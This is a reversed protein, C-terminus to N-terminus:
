DGDGHPRGRVQPLDKPNKIGIHTENPNASVAGRDNLQAGSPNQKHVHANNASKYPARNQNGYPHIRVESGDAHSWTQNKAASNSVKTQQFGDKTLIKETHIVSKGQLQPLSAAADKSIQAATKGGVEAVETAADAVKSVRSVKSAAGIGKTGVVAEATYGFIEGWGEVSSTKEKATEAIGSAVGKVYGGPDAVFSKAEAYQSKAREWTKGSALNYVQKPGSMEWVGAASNALAKGVGTYFRGVDGLYSGTEWLGYPDFKTWPNQRVYTYVNPGDVFGAPDRTLFIGFEIDRYRMGENLLGTPDEDKTNARQRDANSGEEQTRKGYAEYAAQWTITGSENSQSVVDGRSNYANYSRAAGGRITYLVGGIGGGYDSGRITEVTPLSAGSAYEQVSLGGAFSLETQVGGAASEDRGVRRTRHDYTYAFTGKVNDTLTVLRNEFDYAYTQVTSGGVKKETRNGNADYTFTTVTSGSTVSKLQNSNYGDNTTGYVYNWTGPQNGGTVTKQTRNNDADYQYGTTVTPGGTEEAVENTLRYTRDYSNTVTRSNMGAGGYQEVIKLVNGVADYGSPFGGTAQSYDFASIVGGSTRTTETLKRSFADFSSLAEAGNPLVKRTVNGSLDYFYETRYETTAQADAKETCSVLRNLKDYSSALFRGSSGYLTTLRNGVKDYTHVHTSGASTEAILRNLKDYVQTAGRLVKRPITENPYTVSLLNGVKDYALQRNDATRDTYLVAAPRNLADYQYTTLQGKPDTRTLQVVGDYTAQEIRSSTSGADWLTHTKRGLGDYYFATIRGQADDVTALNGADDYWDFISVDGPAPATASPQGTLPNTVTRYKRGLSDYFNRTINGNGDTLAVVNGAADYGTHVLVDHPGLAQLDASPNGTVPNSVADTVRNARDYFSRTVFGRADTVALVNGTGDYATVIRPSQVASTQPQGGVITTAAVTPQRELTRRNRADYEYEWRHGLPNLTAIVNSNKDYVTQTRPSGSSPSEPTSRNVLGTVPDPSWAAVVRGADDYDSESERAEADITKWVLGICSYVTRTTAALATGFGDTVSIERLLGDKLTRTVKGRPDTVTVQLAEKEGSVAGYTTTTTAYIGPQYEVMTRIPRYLADYQAYTRVDIVGSEAHVAAYRIVETPKFGSSDFASGGPNGKVTGIGPLNLGSDTYRMETHTASHSGAAETACNAQNANQYSNPLGTFVHVPRQLGDYFTRKVFGRPDTEAIISGVANYAYTTVLDNGTATGRNAETVIGDANRTPLGQGDMDRITKVLRNLADYHYLTYNGEEDIEAAKSGNANYWIQRSTVATGGRTGAAPYTVATLRNLKDYTFTTRNGRADLTAIKNNNFDYSHQVTLKESQPATVEQWVRGLSDPVTYTVLDKEWSQGAINTFAQVRSATQFGSFRPNSYDYREQQIVSGDHVTKEKRRGLHDVTFYTQTAHPDDLYRMVRYAESYEYSERRGLADVKGTPDAWVTMMSSGSPLGGPVASFDDAFEWTTVNGSFDTAKKLSLGSSLDFEYSESGLYGPTSPLGGFHIRTTLYYVMWEKSLSNATVDIDVLEANLGEFQYVTTNGVADTVTTSPAVDVGVTEGFRIEGSSQFT